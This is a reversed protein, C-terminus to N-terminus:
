LNKRRSKVLAIAISKRRQPDETFYFNNNEKKIKSKKWGLKNEM